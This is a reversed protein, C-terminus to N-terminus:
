SLKTFEKMFKAEQEDFFLKRQDAPEEVVEIFEVVSDIGNFNASKIIDLIRPDGNKWFVLLFDAHAFALNHTYATWELHCSHAYDKIYETAPDPIITIFKDFDLLNNRLLAQDLPPEPVSSVILLRRKTM